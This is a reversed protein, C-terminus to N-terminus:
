LQNNLYLKSMKIYFDKIVGKRIWQYMGAKFASLTRYTIYNSDFVEKCTAGPHNILYETIEKVMEKFPTPRGHVCGAEATKNFEQPNVIKTLAKRNLKPKVAEEIEDNGRKTKEYTLVGIGYDQCIRM